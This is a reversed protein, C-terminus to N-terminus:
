SVDQGQENIGKHNYVPMQILIGNNIVVMNSNDSKGKKKTKKIGINGIQYFV